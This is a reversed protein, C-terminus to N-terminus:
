TVSKIMQKSGNLFKRNKFKVKGIKPLIITRHNWDFWKANHNNIERFSDKQKKSHFKPFKSLGKFFKTFAGEQDRRSQQLAVSSVEKM